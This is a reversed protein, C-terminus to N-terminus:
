KVGIKFHGLIPYVSATSAVLIQKISSKTQDLAQTIDPNNNYNYKELADYSSAIPWKIAGMDAKLCEYIYIVKFKTFSHM